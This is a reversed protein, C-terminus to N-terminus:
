ARAVALPQAAHVRQAQQTLAQESLARYERHPLATFAEGYGQGHLGSLARWRSLALSASVDFALAATEHAAAAAQKRPWTSTIDVLRTAPLPTWWEFGWVELSELLAAGAVARSVAQHDRHGDLFWPVLVRSAGSLAVAAELRETLEDVLDPLGGDPM